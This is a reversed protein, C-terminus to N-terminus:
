RIVCIKGKWDLLVTQGSRRLRGIEPLAKMIEELEPSGPTCEVWDADPRDLVKLDIWSGGFLKFTRDGLGRTMLHVARGAREDAVARQLVDHLGSEEAHLSASTPVARRSELTLRAPEDLAESRVGSSGVSVAAAQKLAADAAREEAPKALAPVGAVVGGIPAGEAEGAPRAAAAVAKSADKLQAPGPPAENSAIMDADSAKRKLELAGPYAPPSLKEQARSEKKGATDASGSDVQHGRATQARGAGPTAPGAPMAQEISPGQSPAAMNGVAPAAAPTRQEAVEVRGPKRFESTLLFVVTAGIGLVLAAVVALPVRSPSLLKRERPNRIADAVAAPEDAAIRMSLALLERCSACDSLHGELRLREQDSLNRELYAALANEDPCSSAASGTQRLLAKRIASDISREERM